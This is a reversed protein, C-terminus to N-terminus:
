LGTRGKTGLVCYKSLLVISYLVTPRSCMYCYFVNHLLVFHKHFKSGLQINNEELKETM